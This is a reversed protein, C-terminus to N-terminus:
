YRDYDYDPPDDSYADAGDDYAEYYESSDDVYVAVYRTYLNKTDDQGMLAVNYEYSGEQPFECSSIIKDDVKLDSFACKNKIHDCNIKFYNRIDFTYVDTGVPGDVFDFGTIDADVSFKNNFFNILADEDWAGIEFLEENSFTRYIFTGDTFNLKVVM